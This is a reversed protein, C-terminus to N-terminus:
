KLSILTGAPYNITIEFRDESFFKSAKNVGYTKYDFNPYAQYIKQMVSALVCPKGAEEIIREAFSEIEEKSAPKKEGVTKASNKKSPQRDSGKKKKQEKEEQKGDEDLVFFRDCAHVFSEPTKKEGAGIVYINSEKLRKALGTFDSDSTMLCIADVNGSYLIDMADIIMKSDTVNKGATYSYQQVPTLSFDNVIDRWGSASKKTFDGYMRKYSVRGLVILDKELKEMYKASVNETDILLAINYNENEM